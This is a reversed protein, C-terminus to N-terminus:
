VNKLEQLEKIAQDIAEQITNKPKTNLTHKALILRLEQNYENEDELFKNFVITFNFM